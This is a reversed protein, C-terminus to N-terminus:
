PRTSLTTYRGSPASMKTIVACKSLPALRHHPGGVVGFGIGQEYPKAGLAGARGIGLLDGGPYHEIEVDLAPYDADLNEIHALAHRPLCRGSDALTRVSRNKGTASLGVAE